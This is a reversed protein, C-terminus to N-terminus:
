RTQLFEYERQIMEDDPFILLYSSALERAEEWNGLNQHSLIRNSMMSQLVEVSLGEVREDPENGYILDTLSVGARGLTLDFWVIGTDFFDVAQQFDSTRMATVGLMNYIIATSEGGLELATELAVRAEGFENQMFRIMGVGRWALPLEEGHEIAKEFYSLALELEGIALLESAENIYSGNRALGEYENEVEYEEESPSERQCGALLVLMLLSCVVLIVSKRKKM